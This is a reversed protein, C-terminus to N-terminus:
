NLQEPSLKYQINFIYIPRAQFDEKKKGKLKDQSKKTQKNLTLCSTIPIIFLGKAHPEINIQSSTPSHKINARATPAVPKLNRSHVQKQRGTKPLKGLFEEKSLTRM